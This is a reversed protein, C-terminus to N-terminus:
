VLPSPPQSQDVDLSRRAHHELTRAVAVHSWRGGRKQTFGNSNLREALKRLSMGRARLRRMVDLVRQERYDILLRDGPGRRFGFPPDGGLRESRARKRALAERTRQSVLSRSLKVLDSGLDQQREADSRSM